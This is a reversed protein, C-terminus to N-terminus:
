IVSDSKDTNQTNKPIRWYRKYHFNEKYNTYNTKIIYLHKTLKYIQMIYYGIVTYNRWGRDKNHPKLSPRGMHESLSWWLLWPNSGQGM